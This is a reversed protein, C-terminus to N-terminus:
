QGHSALYENGMDMLEELSVRRYIENRKEKENRRVFEDTDAYYDSLRPFVARLAMYNTDLLLGDMEGNESGIMLLNDEPIEWIRIGNGGEDPPLSASQALIAYEWLLAGNEMDHLRLAGDATHCLLGAGGLCPLLQLIDQPLYDTSLTHHLLGDDMGYFRVIGTNDLLLFEKEEPLLACPSAETVLGDAESSIQSLIEASLLSHATRPIDGASSNSSLPELRGAEEQYLSLADALAKEAEVVYPLKPNEFPLAEMAASVAGTRDGEQLLKASLLALTRSEGRWASFLQGQLKENEQMGQAYQQSIEEYQGTLRDNAKVLEEKEKELRRDKILLTAIFVLAIACVACPFFLRRNGNADQPAQRDPVAIDHPAIDHPSDDFTMDATKM